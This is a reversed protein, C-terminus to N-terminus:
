QTAAKASPNAFFPDAADKLECANGDPDAFTAVEGWDFSKREVDVGRAALLATAMDIDEVNFRLMTPNASNPKRTDQAHGGTEIMLYGDGFHLCSLGPKEFWVPLGLTDRYFAVCAPFRESGLIIGQTKIQSAFPDTVINM